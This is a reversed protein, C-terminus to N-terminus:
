NSGDKSVEEETVAQVDEILKKLIEQIDWQASRSLIRSDYKVIDAILEIDREIRLDWSRRTKGM